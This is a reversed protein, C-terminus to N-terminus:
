ERWGEPNELFRQIDRVRWMTVQGIKVGRPARGERVWKWWTSRSVPVLRLVDTLRMLGEMREGEERMRMVTNVM